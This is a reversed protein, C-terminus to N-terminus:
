KGSQALQQRAPVAALADRGNALWVGDKNGAPSYRCVLYDDTASSALACGVQTTAPWVIQTFHGVDRWEGTRSNDPFVGPRFYRGEDIMGGVMVDYSFVGRQGHWLNEGSTKRRGPTQDHAFVGTSAMYRAYGLAEAALQDSWSMAPLGFKARAMNHSGLVAQRLLMEGRDAPAPWHPNPLSAAACPTALLLAIPLLRMM